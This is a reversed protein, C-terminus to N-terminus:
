KFISTNGLTDAVEDLFLECVVQDGQLDYHRERDWPVQVWLRYQEQGDLSYPLLKSMREFLAKKVMGGHPLIFAVAIDGNILKKQVGAEVEALARNYESKIADLWMLAEHRSEAMLQYTKLAKNKHAFLEVIRSNKSPHMQVACVTSIRFGGLCNDLSSKDMFWEFQGDRLRFYREQWTQVLGLIRNEKSSKKLLGEKVSAM